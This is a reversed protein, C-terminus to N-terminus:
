PFHAYYMVPTAGDTFEIGEYSIGISNLWDEDTTDIYQDYGHEIRVGRVTDYDNGLFFDGLMQLPMTLIYFFLSIILIAGALPAVAVIIVKRRAEPDTLVAVAAKAAVKVAAASIAM